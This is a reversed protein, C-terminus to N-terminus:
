DRREHRSPDLSQLAGRAPEGPVDRNRASKRRDDHQDREDRHHDSRVDPETLAVAQGFVLDLILQGRHTRGPGVLDLAVDVTEFTRDDALCQGRAGCQRDLLEHRDVAVQIGLPRAGAVTHRDLVVVSLDHRWFEGVSTISGDVGGAQKRDGIRRDGQLCLEDNGVGVGPLRRGPQGLPRFEVVREISRQAFERKAGSEVVDVEDVRLRIDDHVRRRLADVERGTKAATGLTSRLQRRQDVPQGDVRHRSVHGDAVESRVRRRSISGAREDATRHEEVALQGSVDGAPEVGALDGVDHGVVLVPTRETLGALRVHDARVGPHTGVGPQEELIPGGVELLDFRGTRRGVLLQARHTDEVRRHEELRDVESHDLRGHVFRRVDVDHGVIEAVLDHRAASDDGDLPEVPQDERLSFECRNTTRDVVEDPVQQHRDGHEDDHHREDGDAPCIPEEFREADDRCAQSRDSVTVFGAIPRLEGLSAGVLEHFERVVDVRHQDREVLPSSACSLARVLPTEQEPAQERSRDRFPGFRAVPVDDLLHGGCRHRDDDDTPETREDGGTCRLPSAFQEVPEHVFGVVEGRLPTELPHLEAAIGVDGRTPDASRVEVMCRTSRVEHDVHALHERSRSGSPSRYTRAPSSTPGM